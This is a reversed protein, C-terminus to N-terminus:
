GKSSKNRINGKIDLFAEMGKLFDPTGVFTIACVKTNKRDHFM